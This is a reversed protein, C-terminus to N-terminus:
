LALDYIKTIERVLDDKVHVQDEIYGALGGSRVIEYSPFYDVLNNRALREACVRLVSKSFENAVMCDNMTFTVLTPVPSVTIITKIGIENVWRHGRGIFAYLLLRRLLPSLHLDIRINKVLRMQLNGFELVIQDRQRVVGRSPWANNYCCRLKALHSYVADIQSRREKARDLTVDNGGILLLDAFLDGSPVITEEPYEKGQLAFLYENHCQARITNMLYVM